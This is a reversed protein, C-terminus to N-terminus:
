ATGKRRLRFLQRQVELTYISMAISLALGLLGDKYGQYDIMRRKLERLPQGVLSRATARRGADWQARAELKAYAKQKTAFQRWSNYNYHILPANLSGTSGNVTPREHVRISEDYRCYARRLLRVQYDPWWGTHKIERGFLINRRPVQYAAHEVESVVRQIEDSLDSTCREDADIFFVWETTAADLGYNRQRSFNTFPLEIVRDAVRLAIERTATDADDDLVILTTAGTRARLSALSKFCKELHDSERWALAVVTLLTPETM